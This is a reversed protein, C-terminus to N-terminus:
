SHTVSMKVVQVQFVIQTLPSYNSAAMPSAEMIGMVPLVETKIIILNRGIQTIAFRAIKQGRSEFVFHLM